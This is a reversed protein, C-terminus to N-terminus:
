TTGAGGQQLIEAKLSISGCLIIKVLCDTFSSSWDASGLSVSSSMSLATPSKHTLAKAQELPPPWTTFAALWDKCTIIM